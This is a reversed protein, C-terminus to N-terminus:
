YLVVEEGGGVPAVPEVEPRRLVRGGPGDDKQDEEEEDNDPGEEEVDEAAEAGGM